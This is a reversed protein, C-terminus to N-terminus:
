AQASEVREPFVPTVPERGALYAEINRDIMELMAAEAQKTSGGIHPTLIAYPSALLRDTFQPEFVDLGVGGLTGKELAHCLASTDVVAARGVNILHGDAGLADLIQSDVSAATQTTAPVCVILADAWTALEFLTPFYRYPVGDRSARGFYGLRMGMVALRVAVGRGIAGLGYVGANMGTLGIAPPWPSIQVRDRLLRNAEGIGRMSAILLAVALDAVSDAAAGPSNTVLIGLDRAAKLDIGDCGAGICAILGLNPLALMSQRSTEYSGPLVLIRIRRRRKAPLQRIGDKVSSNIPGIVDGKQQLRDLVVQPVGAMALIM